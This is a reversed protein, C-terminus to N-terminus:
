KLKVKFSLQACLFDSEKSPAVYFRGVTVGIYYNEVPQCKDVHYKSTNLDWFYTINEKKEGFQMLTSNFLFTPPPPHYICLEEIKNKRLFADGVHDGTAWM